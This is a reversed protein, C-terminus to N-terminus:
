TVSPDAPSTSKETLSSAISSRDAAASGSFAAGGRVVTVHRNFSPSFPCRAVVRTVSPVPVSGDAVGSVGVVGTSPEPRAASLSM